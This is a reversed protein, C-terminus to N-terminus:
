SIIKFRFNLVHFKNVHFNGLNRYNTTVQVSRNMEEFDESYVADSVATRLKSYSEYFM